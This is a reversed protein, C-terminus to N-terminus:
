MKLVLSFQSFCFERRLPSNYLYGAMPVDSDLFHGEHPMVLGHFIISASFVNVFMMSPSLFGVKIKNPMLLLQRESSLSAFSTEKVHFDTSRSQFYLSVTVLSALTLSSFLVSIFSRNLHIWYCMGQTRLCWVLSHLSIAHLLWGYLSAWRPLIGRRIKIHQVSCSALSHKM